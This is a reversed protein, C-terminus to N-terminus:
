FNLLLWNRERGEKKKEREREEEEAASLGAALFLGTEGGDNGAAEM